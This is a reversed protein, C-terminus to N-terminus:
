WVLGNEINACIKTGSWVLIGALSFWGNECSLLNAQWVRRKFFVYRTGHCFGNRLVNPNAQCCEASDVNMDAHMMGYGCKKWLETQNLKNRLTQVFAANLYRAITRRM